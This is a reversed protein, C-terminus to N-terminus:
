GALGHLRNITQQFGEVENLYLLRLGCKHARWRGRDSAFCAEIVNCYNLQYSFWHRPIYSLWMFEGHDCQLKNFEEKTIQHRHLPDIGDREFELELHCVLHHPIEPDFYDSSFTTTLPHELESFYACLVLGIWDGDNYVNSPLQITVSYGNFSPSSFWDPIESPPFCSSYIM